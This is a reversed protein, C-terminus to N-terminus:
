KVAYFCDGAGIHRMLNHNGGHGYFSPRTGGGPHASALCLDDPGRETLIKMVGGRRAGRDTIQGIIPHPRPTTPQTGPHKPLVKPYLGVTEFGILPHILLTNCSMQDNLPTTIHNIGVRKSTTAGEEPSIFEQVKISCDKNVTWLRVKPLTLRM